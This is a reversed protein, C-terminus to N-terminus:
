IKFKNVQKMMEGTMEALNHASTAVGEASSSMEQSSAAIEESSASVEESIASAEEVKELITNKESNIKDASVSVGEIQPMIEEVSSIINTFTSIANNIVETQNDLETSMTDTTKIMGDTDKSINSILNNINVLSEKSQEALKKVEDAVVSFGRGAEGARAAEIAANLALLNTQDAISNIAMTIENIKGINEGLVSIRKVFEKFTRTTNAVSESLIEMDKGSSQAMSDIQRSNLDINKIDGVMKELEKGFSDLVENIGMLEVSQSSTGKAVDQITTAVNESSTSMEQAVAALNSSQAEISNSSDSILGIMNKISSQMTNVSRTIQGIEDKSNLYKSSVEKTFDGNSLQEIHKATLQIGKAISTSIIYSAAIGILLLIASFIITNNKLNSLEALLEENNMVVALSWGTGDVPAYGVYKNVKNYTYNGVGKEGAVMKKEIEVLQALSPDKKINEFDNDMSLVLEKNSHAITNGNKALMFAKGTTGFTIGNTIESLFNGDVTAVLVGTISGHYKIPAAYVVVVTNNVSSILPDSVNPVGEKAKKFYEREKVDTSKGDTYRAAGDLSVIGMKQYGMRQVEEKLMSLKEEITKNPDEIAEIAAAAEVSHITDRIKAETYDASSEAIKPFTKEVNDILARSANIYSIVGLGVSVLVMMLGTFIILKQKISKVKMEGM